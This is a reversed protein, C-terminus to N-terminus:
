ARLRRLPGSRFWSRPRRLRRLWRARAGGAEARHTRSTRRRGHVGCSPAPGGSAIARERRRASPLGAAAARAFGQGGVVMSGFPWSGSRRRRSTRSTSRAPSGSWTTMSCWSPRRSHAELFRWRRASSRGSLPCCSTSPSGLPCRRRRCPTMQVHRRRPSWCPLSPSASSAISRPHDGDAVTVGEEVQVCTGGVDLRHSAPYM